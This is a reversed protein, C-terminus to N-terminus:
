GGDILGAAEMARITAYAIEDSANAWERVPPNVDGWWSMPRAKIATDLIKMWDLAYLDRRTLRKKPM